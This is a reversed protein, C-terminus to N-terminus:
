GCSTHAHDSVTLVPQGDPHLASYVCDLSAKITRWPCVERLAHVDQVTRPSSGMNDARQSVHGRIAFCVFELYLQLRRVLLLASARGGEDDGGRM